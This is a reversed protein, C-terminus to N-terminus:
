AFVPAETGRVAAVVRAALQKPSLGVEDYLEKPTGHDVFRDPIGFKVARKATGLEELAENVACGFGGVVANDEATFLFEHTEAMDRLMALDLPKVFRANVVTVPHGLEAEILPAAEEFHLSMLGIGILAVREGRKVLEAEGIPLAPYPTGDIPHKGTANGRPYRMASPGDNHEYMTRTMRRLEQEDKPAMVVMDPIIRLYSLDLVGHHTPGDAGVLGGRDLVFRVPLHQLAVDHVIQDFARQLFTSYIAVFPKVGECAMGAAMCVGSAEAIGVDFFREPFEKEFQDTGTGQPMAATIAVVKSDERALECLTTGFVKTLAPPGSTKAMEGTEVKMNAAAHYKIPDAEAYSYGKGKKTILHILLPGRLEHAKKLISVTEEMNHGDIPGIYRFGLQEFFMGPVMLGKISEEVRQAAHLLTDGVRSRHLLAAIEGKVKNYAPETILDALAKHLVWVNNSISMENDNLIVIMDTKRMGAHNLAEYALGGTMSGDGIVAVVKNTGGIVDRANAMGLAASISTSAHGAGFADYESETRKLFGSLGGYQRISEFRENRGTLIKWAYAQHGTDWVVKDEPPDFAHLLAVTLDVACLPAGFHGGKVAIVEIIRQRVDKALQELQPLSLKKIDAPSKIAPLVAAELAPSSAQHSSM